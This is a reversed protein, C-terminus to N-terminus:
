SCMQMTMEKLPNLERKEILNFETVFHYFHKYCQNIHAESQMALIKEFHHIYVHVFVRFLRKFINKVVSQFNKPFPIAANPPFIEEDNIQNDVWDMLLSIYKPASLATPKKYKDGDAWYYEYKPGGSMVPCSEDTCVESITDYILNIRNYFDVVHVALWDNLDEDCPLAVAERLDLGAKLSAKARKHLQYKPTNTEWKKKPRFTKQHRTKFSFAGKKESM